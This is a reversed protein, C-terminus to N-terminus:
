EPGSSIRVAEVLPSGEIAIARTMLNEIAQNSRRYDTESAGCSECLSINRYSLEKAVGRNAVKHREHDLFM